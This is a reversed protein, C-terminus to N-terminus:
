LRAGIVGKGELHAAMGLLAGITVVGTGGIGTVLIGYPEDLAPLAPQPCIPSSGREGVARRKRRACRAATSPSSARASARSAPSTRTAPPSTSRASAASSPRSRCAGLPLQVARSCDGCGECVLTTSSCASRRIPCLHRAQAPPAERGRLDPRLDPGHRGAIERLERQVADLEDRHRVDVGAPSAADAPYKEPEDTVVVIREVGEARAPAHDAPVTLTGDVPQGGTMAVADNYLIKYTINVRGRRRRPDGAPRFPFLHRRRHEPLRAADRHLAGPRDLGRRRRGDPQLDDTDRDMWMAMDHCGIGALARSGEPVHDLHQAPLRLLFLPTRAAAPRPM